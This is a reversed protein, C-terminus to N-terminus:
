RTETLGQWWKTSQSTADLVFIEGIVPTILEIGEAEALENLTVVPDYWTHFALEFMGWHIPLLRKANVDKFAQLTEVPMMHVARWGKDYQGNEMLAIDFPGLRKGIELFHTDYGSDGSFYMKTTPDALVWSAWLTRNNYFGDRGSFHQAPVATFEIGHTSYSEWWDRETIRSSDIGWRNLHLGVGLPTIFETDSNKFFKVSKMDLHDYHDHSILVVDIRPLEQLSMVPPQFRKATFNVPAATPSFVPDILIITESVNMLFSSHGLWIIKPAKSAQTFRDFDFKVEPLPKEPMGDERTRFWEVLFESMSAENRLENILHPLRNEFELTQQNFAQSQAFRQYDESDPLAGFVPLKFFWYGAIALFAFLGLLTLFVKKM